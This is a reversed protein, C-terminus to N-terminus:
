SRVPRRDSPRSRRPLGWARWPAPSRRHGGPHDGVRAPRHHQQPHTTRAPEGRVAPRARDPCADIGRDGTGPRRAGGPRRHTRFRLRRRDPLAGRLLGPRGAPAGTTRRAAVARARHLRRRAVGRAAPGAPLCGVDVVGARGHGQDGPAPRRAGPEPHGALRQGDELCFFLVVVLLVLATLTHLLAAAAAMGQDFMESGSMAAFAQEAIDEPGEPSGPLAAWDVAEELEELGRVVADVLEPLQQAFMPVTAWSPLVFVLVLMLVLLLASLADPIRTGRLRAALPDVLAAPLLALVWLSSSSACRSSPSCCPWWSASCASSRGRRGEGGLVPSGAAGGAGEAAGQHLRQRFGPPHPTASRRRPPRAAAPGAAGDM